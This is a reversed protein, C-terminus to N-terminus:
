MPFIFVLVILTKKIKWLSKVNKCATFTGNFCGATLVWLFSEWWVAEVTFWRLGGFAGDWRFYTLAKDLSSHIFFFFFPSSNPQIHYHPRWKCKIVVYLSAVPQYLVAINIFELCIPMLTTLIWCPFSCVTERCLPFKELWNANPWCLSYFAPVCFVQRHTFTELFADLEASSTSIWLTGATQSIHPSSLLYDVTATRALIKKEM